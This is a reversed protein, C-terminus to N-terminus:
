GKQAKAALLSVIEDVQPPSLTLPRRTVVDTLEWLRLVQVAPSKLSLAVDPNTLVVLPISETDAFAWSLRKRVASADQQVAQSPSKLLITRYTRAYRSPKRTWENGECRIYGSYNKTEVVFVGTPGVLIHDIDGRQGPLVFGNLLVYTDDLNNKLAETVASEGATGTAFLWLKQQLRNITSLLVLFFALFIALAWFNANTLSLITCGGVFIVPAGISLWLFVRKQHQYRRFRFGQSKSRVVRM